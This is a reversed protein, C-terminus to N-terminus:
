LLWIFVFTWQLSAFYFVLEVLVTKDVIILASMSLQMDLFNQPHNIIM